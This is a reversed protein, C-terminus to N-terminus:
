DLTTGRISRSGPKFSVDAFVCRTGEVFCTLAEMNSIQEAVTHKQCFRVDHNCSQCAERVRM